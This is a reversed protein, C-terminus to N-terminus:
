VGVWGNLTESEYISHTQFPFCSTKDGEEDGIGPAFAM